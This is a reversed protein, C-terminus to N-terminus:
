EGAQPTRVKLRHPYEYSKTVPLKEIEVNLADLYNRSETSIVRENERLWNRGFETAFLPVIDFIYEEADYALDFREEMAVQVMYAGVYMFYYDSLRLAEADTLETPREISKRLLLSVDNTYSFRYIEQWELYIDRVSEARALKNNQHLEQAVFLLGAVVGLAALIQFWDNLKESNM